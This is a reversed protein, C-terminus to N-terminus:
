VRAGPLLFAVWSVCYIYFRNNPTDGKGLACYKPHKERRSYKDNGHRKTGKNLVFEAGRAPKPDKPKDFKM